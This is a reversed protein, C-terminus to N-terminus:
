KEALYPQLQRKLRERGNHLTAHVNSRKIGLVDAAEQATLGQYTVLVIVERERSPLASVLRAVLQGLEETMAASAPDTGREDELEAPLPDADDRASLQDRFTNVIIRFLWTRFSAEGRFTRWSRAARYLAEGVVEEALDPEGTLQIAFGLAAPLHESVLRDFTTRDVAHGM